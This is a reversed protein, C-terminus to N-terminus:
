AAEALAPAAPAVAANDRAIPELARQLWHQQPLYGHMFADWHGAKLVARLYQLPELHAPKWFM